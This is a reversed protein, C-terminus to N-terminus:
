QASQQDGDPERNSGEFAFDFDALGLIPSSGFLDTNGQASALWM